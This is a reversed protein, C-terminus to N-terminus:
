SQVQAACWLALLYMATMSTYGLVNWALRKKQKPTRRSRGPGGSGAPRASPADGIGTM